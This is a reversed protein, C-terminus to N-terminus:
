GPHHQRCSCDPHPSWVRRRVRWDPPCIEITANLLPSPREPRDLFSLAHLACTAATLLALVSDAAVRGAPELDLRLRPWAPDRDARHLELCGLCASHGPLVLPGVIGRRQGLVTQLHPAGALLFRYGAAPDADTLVALDRPLDDCHRSGVASPAVREVAAQAGAGRTGALDDYGIGGPVVDEPESRRPDCVDVRGVGGAALLAALPAGLRGCGVVLVAAARRRGMAVAAMGPGPYRLSLAALDPALRRREVAPTGALPATGISADDLLGARSLLDLLRHTEDAPLGQRAAVEVVEPTERSGDLLELLGVAIPDLDTLAVALGPDVGIQLTSPGRWFRPVPKLQPRM